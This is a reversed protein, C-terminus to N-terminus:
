SQQTTVPAPSQSSTSTTQARTSTSQSQPASSQTSTSPTQKAVLAPDSGAAMQTGIIGLPGIFAAAAVVAVFRRIRQTRRRRGAKKAEAIRLAEERSIPTSRRPRAAGPIQGVHSTM